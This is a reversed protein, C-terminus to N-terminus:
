TISRPAHGAGRMSDLGVSPLQKQKAVTESKERQRPGLALSQRGRRTGSLVGGGRWEGSHSSSGGTLVSSRM